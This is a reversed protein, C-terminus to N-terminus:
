RQFGGQATSGAAAAAVVREVTQPTCVVELLFGPSFEEVVMEYRRVGYLHAEQGNGSVALVRAPARDDVLERCEALLRRKETGVIVVDAETNEIVERLPSAGACSDSVVEVGPERELIRCIVERTMRPLDALLVRVRLSPLTTSM